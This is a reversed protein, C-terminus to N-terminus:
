QCGSAATEWDLGYKDASLFDLRLTQVALAAEVDNTVKPLSDFLYTPKVPKEGLCKPQLVIPADPKREFLSCGSALVLLVVIAYKM